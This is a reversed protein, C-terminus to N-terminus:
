IAGCEVVKVATKSLNLSAIRKVVDLGDVVRGFVLSFSFKKFEREAYWIMFQSGIMGRGNDSTGTGKFRIMGVDDKLPCLDAEFKRTEFVSHGGTGDDNEVDGGALFGEGSKFFHTNKYGFGPKGTCLGVFNECMKPAKDPRLQFVIRGSEAGDVSLKMWCHPLKNQLRSTQSVPSPLSQTVSMVENNVNPKAPKKAADLYSFPKSVEDDEEDAEDDISRKTKEEYFDNQLKSGLLSLNDLGLSLVSTSTIGPPDSNLGSDVISSGNLMTGSEIAETSELVQNINLSISDDHISNTNYNPIKYNERYPSTAHGNHLRTEGSNVRATLLDSVMYMLLVNAFNGLRAHDELSSPIMFPEDRHLGLQSLTLNKPYPDELKLVIGQTANNITTTIM